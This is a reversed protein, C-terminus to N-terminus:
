DRTLIKKYINIYKEAVAEPTYNLVNQTGAAILSERLKSDSSVKIIAQRIQTVSKPDVLLAGKGATSKMPSLDSTIVVRGVAQAEIIPVGFGESLSVFALIDADIYSQYVENLSLNYKNIYNIKFKELCDKQSETLKGIITLTCDFGNLAEALRSLNKNGKTGIQLINPQHVNFERYVPKFLSRNYCNSIVSPYEAMLKQAVLTEATETSITTIYKAKSIPLSLYIFKYIKKKFGKLVDRFYNIDHITLVTKEKPLGLAVYHVAGTIHYIDADFQRLAKLDQLLTPKSGLQYEIVEFKKRFEIALTQFLEEISNAGEVRKRYILVLKKM